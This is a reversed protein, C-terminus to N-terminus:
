SLAGRRTSRQRAIGRQESRAALLPPSNRGSAGAEMVVALDAASAVPSAAEVAHEADLSIAFPLAPLDFQTQFPTAAECLVIRKELGWLRAAVRAEPEKAAILFVWDAPAELAWAVARDCQECGPSVFLLQRNTLIADSAPAWSGDPLLRLAPLPALQQGLAM